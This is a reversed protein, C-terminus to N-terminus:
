SCEISLTAYSSYEGGDSFTTYPWSNPFRLSPIGAFYECTLFLDAEERELFDVSEVLSATAWKSMFFSRECMGVAMESRSRAM